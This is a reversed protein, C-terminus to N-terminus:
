SETVTYLTQTKALCTGPKKGSTMCFFTHLSCPVPVVVQYISIPCVTPLFSCLDNISRSLPCLQWYDTNIHTHIHTHIFYVCAYIIILLRIIITHIYRVRPFCTKKNCFSTQGNSFYNRQSFQYLNRPRLVELMQPQIIWQQLPQSPCQLTNPSDRAPVSQIGTDFGKEM